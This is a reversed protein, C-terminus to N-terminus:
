KIEGALAMMTQNYASMFDKFTKDSDAIEPMVAQTKPKPAAAPTETKQPADFKQHYPNDKRCGVIHPYLESIAYEVFDYLPSSIHEVDELGSMIDECVSEVRDSYTLPVYREPLGDDGDMEYSEGKLQAEDEEIRDEIAKLFMVFVDAYKKQNEETM